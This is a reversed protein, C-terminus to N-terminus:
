TPTPVWSALQPSSAQLETSLVAGCGAVHKLTLTLNPERVAM